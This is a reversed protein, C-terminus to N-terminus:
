KGNRAWHNGILAYSFWARSFSLDQHSLSLGRTPGHTKSGSHKAQQDLKSGPFCGSPDAGIEIGSDNESTRSGFSGEVCRSGIQPLELEAQNSQKSTKQPRTGMGLSENRCVNRGCILFPAKKSKRCKKRIQPTKKRLAASSTKLKKRRFDAPIRRFDTPIRRFNGSLLRHQPTKTKTAANKQNAASKRSHPPFKRGLANHCFNGGCSTRPIGM